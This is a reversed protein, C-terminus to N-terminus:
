GMYGMHVQFKRSDISAAVIGAGRAAADKLPLPQSVVTVVPPAGIQFDNTSNIAHRMGKSQILDAGSVAVLLVLM